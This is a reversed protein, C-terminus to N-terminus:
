VDVVVRCRWKGRSAGFELGSRAVAKPLAGTVEVVEAPVLHLTGIVSGDAEDNLTAFAPVEGSVDGITVVAELIEVLLSEDDTPGFALDQERQPRAPVVAFTEVLGAIAEELCASRTPGWAEVIVDATHAVTRHGRGGGGSREHGDNGKESVM